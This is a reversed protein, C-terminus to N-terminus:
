AQTVELLYAIKAIKGRTQANDPQIVEDRIKHLGLSRATDIHGKKRGSLSKVLKIKVDAV